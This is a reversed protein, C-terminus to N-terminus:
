LQRQATIHPLGETQPQAHFMNALNFMATLTEPHDPGLLRQFAILAQRRLRVAVTLDGTDALTGALNAMTTLTDRHDPGLVRLRLAYTEHNLELAKALNGQGRLTSALSNM